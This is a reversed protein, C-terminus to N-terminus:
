GGTKLLFLNKFDEGPRGTKMKWNAGTEKECNAL